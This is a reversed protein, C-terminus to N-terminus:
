PIIKVPPLAVSLYIVLGNVHRTRIANFGLSSAWAVVQDAAIGVAEDTIASVVHRIADQDRVHLVNFVSYASALTNYFLHVEVTDAETHVSTEICKRIAKKLETLYEEYVPGFGAASRAAGVRKIIDDAWAKEDDMKSQDVRQKKMM